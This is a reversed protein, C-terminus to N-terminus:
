DEKATVKSQSLISNSLIGVTALWMAAFSVCGVAVWLVPFIDPLSPPPVLSAEAIHLLVM